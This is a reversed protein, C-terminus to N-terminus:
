DVTKVTLFSRNEISLELKKYLKFKNWKNWSSGYSGSGGCYALGVMYLTRM